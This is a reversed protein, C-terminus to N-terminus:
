SDPGEIGVQLARELMNYHRPCPLRSILLFLPSKLLGNLFGTISHPKPTLIQYHLHHVTGLVCFTMNDAGGTQLVVMSRSQLIKTCVRSLVTEFEPM